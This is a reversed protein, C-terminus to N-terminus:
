KIVTIIFDFIKVQIRSYYYKLSRQFMEMENSLVTVIPLYM